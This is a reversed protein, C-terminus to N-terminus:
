GLKEKMWDAELPVHKYPINTCGHNGEPYLALEGKPAEAAIREAEQYPFAWDHKGHVVLLPCQIKSAVGELNFELAKKLMEEDTKVGADHRFKQKIMPPHTAFTAGLNYTGGIGIGAKIRPEFAASRPIYYGGLSVGAAGVRKGDFDARRGLADLVTTIAVEYDPRIPLTFGTEGQGPGDLSLTAMGRALFVNEWHFFEEKTSDLGPILIVLPPRTAGRPRRLNGFMAGGELPFELREATPDLLKLALCYTEVSKKTTARYKELDFLWLYKAFHYGLAARVYAEGATLTRGKAEAEKALTLHLDGNKVWADLWDEWREIASTTRIFDNYDVGRAVFRPGWNQLAGQVIADPM